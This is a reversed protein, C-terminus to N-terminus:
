ITIEHQRGVDQNTSSTQTYWMLPHFVMQKKLFSDQRDSNSSNDGHVDVFAFGGYLGERRPEVICGVWAFCLVAFEDGGIGAIRMGSVCFKSQGTALILGIGPLCLLMLNDSILHALGEHRVLNRWLFGVGDAIFKGATKQFPIMRKDNSGVTVHFVVLM